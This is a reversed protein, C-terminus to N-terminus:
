KRAAFRAADEVSWEHRPPAAARAFSAMPPRKFEASRRPAVHGFIGHWDSHQRGGGRDSWARAAEAERWM